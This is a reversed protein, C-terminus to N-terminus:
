SIALCALLTSRFGIGKRCLWECGVRPDAESLRGCVRAAEANEEETFETPDRSNNWIKKIPQEKPFPLVIEYKGDNPCCSCEIKWVYRLKMSYGKRTEVRNGFTESDSMLSTHDM